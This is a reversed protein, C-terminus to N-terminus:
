KSILKIDAGTLKIDAGPEHHINLADGEIRASVKYFPATSYIFMNWTGEWCSLTIEAKQEGEHLILCVFYAIDKGVFTDRNLSVETSELSDSSSTSYVYAEGSRPPCEENNYTEYFNVNCFICREGEYIHEM